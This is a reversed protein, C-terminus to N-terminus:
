PLLKGVLAFVSSKVTIFANYVRRVAVTIAVLSKKILCFGLALRCLSCHFHCLRRAKGLKLVAFLVASPVPNEKVVAAFRNGKRYYALLRNFVANVDGRRM